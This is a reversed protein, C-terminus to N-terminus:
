LPPSWREWRITTQTTSPRGYTFHPTPLLCGRHTFSLRFISQCTTTSRKPSGTCFHKQETPELIATNPDKTGIWQIPLRLPLVNIIRWLQASAFPSSINMSRCLNVNYIRELLIFTIGLRQHHISLTVKYPIAWDSSTSVPSVHLIDHLWPVRLYLLSISTVSLLPCQIDGAHNTSQNSIQNHCYQPNSRIWCIIADLVALVLAVTFFSPSCTGTCHMLWREVDGKFSDDSPISSHLAGGSYLITVFRSRVTVAEREDDRMM